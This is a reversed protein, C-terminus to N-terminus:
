YGGPKNEHHIWKKAEWNIDDVIQSSKTIEDVVRALEDVIESNANL